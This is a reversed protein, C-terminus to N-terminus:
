QPRYTVTLNYTGATYGKLMVYVDGNATINISCTETATSGDSKCDYSSTTPVTSRKAYLDIDGTGTTSARFTGVGAKFPGFSRTQKLTLSGSFTETKDPLGPGDSGLEVMYALGMRAFKLAHDAQNGTNAYTDNATHIYPDDQGMASEFPMSAAYGKANWSAHDSCAYGCQDSGVKLTPLYTAILNAVFTNQASDTYDTFIYIDNTSGKYNTMDLQMVGVVNTGAAAYSNAIEKSGRLGVEEAAYAMFKLTRRPKYNNSALVRFVETLSAVGSADDDAGPARATEGTNSQNISDLHGGIVVVESANDTGKITAIVSKQKWNPHTFQEITIDSRGNALTTWRQKLWDSANQGYSTQYYRNQFNSLDVITQGINSAQMQALLPNVTTQQDIVYSPRTAAITAQATRQTAGSARMLTARGEAETAHFMFGGCRHLEAHISQSLHALIDEDVQVLHIGEARTAGSLPATAPVQASAALEVQMHKRLQSLAADGLSIWVKEGALANSCLALLAACVAASKLLRMM